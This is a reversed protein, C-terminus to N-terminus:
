VDEFVSKNDIRYSDISELRISYSVKTIGLPIESRVVRPFDQQVKFTLIDSISLKPNDYEPLPSYGHAILKRDFLEISEACNLSVRVAEVMDNLSLSGVADSIVSLRYIRLFLHDNLSELQDESSIRVENREAGSLSKIEVSSNGFIFDQQSREPGLWAEVGLAPGIREILERLFALEAFLGRIVDDSLHQNGRGALFRKWRKLHTITIALASSSDSAVKLASSLARCLSEFLDRDIHRDLTLVLRQSGLAGSRLDVSLGNVLLASKRFDATHDGFLEVIFLCAGAEDKGWYCTVASDGALQLVNFGASPVSINDWPSTNPM